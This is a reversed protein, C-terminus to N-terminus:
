RIVYIVILGALMSGLGVARLTADNLQTALLMTKRLQQPSIFPLIGEFVLVLGIATLIERWM